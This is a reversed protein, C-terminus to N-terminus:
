DVLKCFEEVHLAVRDPQDLIFHHRGDLWEISLFKSTYDEWEAVAAANTM